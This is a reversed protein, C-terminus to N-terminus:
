GYCILNQLLSSSVQSTHNKVMEVIVKTSRTPVLVVQTTTSKIKSALIQNRNSLLAM